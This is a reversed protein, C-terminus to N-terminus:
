MLHAHTPMLYRKEESKTGSAPRMIVTPFRKEDTTETVVVQMNGTIEDVQDTTTVGDILDKFHVAGTVETLISFTYPDWELLNQNSKVPAGDEALIRAGYVVQYREKERGKDDVVS